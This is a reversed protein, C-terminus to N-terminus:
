AGYACAVAGLALAPEVRRGDGGVADVMRIGTAGASGDM